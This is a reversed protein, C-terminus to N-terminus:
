GAADAAGKAHAQEAIREEVMQSLSEVYSDLTWSVQAGGVRMVLGPSQAPDTTFQLAVGPLQDAAQHTLKTRAVDSLTGRTSVVAAHATAAAARLAQGSAAIQRAAQMVIQDELSQDALDGLAKRLLVLLAQAGSKQLTAAFQRAQAQRELLAAMREAHLQERAEAIMQRRASEAESRITELVGSQDAELSALRQAFEAKESEAAERVRDAEGMRQSIEAERADIGDLVPRYLFRKLLWVLVLFNGIQAAVTIWDVSM